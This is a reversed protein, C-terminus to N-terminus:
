LKLSFESVRWTTFWNAIVHIYTGHCSRVAEMSHDIYNMPHKKGQDWIVQIDFLEPEASFLFFKLSVM